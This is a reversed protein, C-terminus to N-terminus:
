QRSSLVQLYAALHKEKERRRYQLVWRPHPLAEIRDFFHHADNLKQLYKFNKGQGISYAIDRRAGFQIQTRINEIAYPTVAKELAPDDYYNINKGDKVFGLHSVATIYVKKYFTQCGGAAEIVDYIFIASMEKKKPYTNPIDCHVELHYPDTFPIGTIGAGFRGPNIGFMFIREHCDDFYRTYFAEVIRRTEQNQFPFLIDIGAPLGKFPAFRRTYEIVQRGFTKRSM